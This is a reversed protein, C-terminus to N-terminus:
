VVAGREVVRSNEGVSWIEYEFLTVDCRGCIDLTYQAFVLDFSDEVECCLRVDVEAKAIRVLECVRINVACVDQELSRPFMTDGPKYVDGRILHIAVNWNSSCIQALRAYQRGRIRVRRALSCRLHHDARVPAAELQWQDSDPRVIHIPRM